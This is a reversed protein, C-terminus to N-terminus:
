NRRSVGALGAEIMEQRVEHVTIDHYIRRLTDFNAGSLLEQAKPERRFNPDRVAARKEPQWGM